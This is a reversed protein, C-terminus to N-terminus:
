NRFLKVKGNKPHTVGSHDTVQAAYRYEGAPAMEGNKLKGDWVESTEKSNFVLNGKLDWVSMIFDAVDDGVPYFTNNADNEPTFANPFTMVLVKKSEDISTKDAPKNDSPAQKTETSATPKASGESAAPTTVPTSSHTNVSPKTETGTTQSANVQTSVNSHVETKPEAFTTKKIAPAAKQKVTSTASQKQSSNTSTQMESVVPQESTEISTSPQEKVVQTSALPQGAGNDSNKTGFYVATIIGAAAVTLLLGKYSFLGGKVASTIAPTPEAPAKLGAEIKSWANPNVDAELNGLGDNFLQDLDKEKM